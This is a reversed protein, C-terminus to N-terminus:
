APAERDKRQRRVAHRFGDRMARDLFDPVDNRSLSAHPALEAILFFDGLEAGAHRQRYRGARMKLEAAVPMLGEVHDAGRHRRPGSFVFGKEDVAGPLRRRLRVPPAFDEIIRYQDFRSVHALRDRAEQEAQKMLDLDPM